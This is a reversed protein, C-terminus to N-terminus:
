VAIVRALGVLHQASEWMAGRSILRHADVWRRWLSTTTCSRVRPSLTAFADLLPDNVAPSSTDCRSVVEVWGALRVIVDDAPGAASEQGLQGGVSELPVQGLFPLCQCQGRIVRRGAELAAPVPVDAEYQSVGREVHEHVAGHLGPPPGRDRVLRVGQQYSQQATRGLGSTRANRHILRCADNM